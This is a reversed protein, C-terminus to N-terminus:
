DLSDVHSKLDGIIDKLIKNCKKNSACNKCDKDAFGNQTIKEKAKELLSKHFHMLNKMVFQCLDEHGGFNGKDLSKLYEEREEPGIYPIPFGEERLILRLLERGVRGNGDKFPHTEEFRQHFRCALEVPHFTKKNKDYWEVLKSLKSEIQSFKPPTFMAGTIGVDVDRFKGASFDDINDMIIKHIQRIFDLSIKIKRDELYDKLKSYNEIEFFERKDKGKVTIGENLTLQTERLSYTNGEINTTGYVYKTYFVEEYREIDSIDISEKILTYGYRLFELQVIDDKTLYKKKYRLAQKCSKAFLEIINKNMVRCYSEKIKDETSDVPCVYSEVCIDGQCFKHYYYKKGRVSKVNLKGLIADIPFDACMHSNDEKVM